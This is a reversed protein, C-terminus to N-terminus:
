NFVNDSKELIRIAPKRALFVVLGSASEPNRGAAVRQYDLRFRTVLFYRLRFIAMRSM